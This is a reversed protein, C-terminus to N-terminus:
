KTLVIKGAGRAKGSRVRCIYVGPSVKRGRDDRGDWYISGSAGDGGTKLTRVSRGMADYIAVSADHELSRGFSISVGAGSPNPSFSVPFVEGHNPEVTEAPDDGVASMDAFTCALVDDWHTSAHSSIYAYCYSSFFPHGYAFSVFDIGEPDEWRILEVDDERFVVEGAATIEIEHRHTSFDWTNPTHTETIEQWENWACGTKKYVAYRDYYYNYQIFYGKCSDPSLIGFWVAADGHGAFRTFDAEVRGPLHVVRESMWTIQEEHGDWYNVVTTLGKAAIGGDGYLWHPYHLNVKSWYTQFLPDTESTYADFDDSWEPVCVGPTVHMLIGEYIRTPDMHPVLYITHSSGGSPVIQMSRVPWLAGVYASDTKAGTGPDFRYIYNDDTSGIWIGSGDWGIANPHAFPTSYIPSMNGAMDFRYWTNADFDATWFHSGDWTLGRPSSSIGVEDVKACTSPDLKYAKGFGTIHWLYGGV